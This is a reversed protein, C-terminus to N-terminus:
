RYIFGQEQQESGAMASTIIFLLTKSMQVSSTALLLLVLAFCKM